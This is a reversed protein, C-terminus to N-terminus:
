YIDLHIAHGDHCLLWCDHIDQAWSPCGKRDMKNKGPFAVAEDFHAESNDLAYAKFVRPEVHVQSAARKSFATSFLSTISAGFKTRSGQQGHEAYSLERVIGTPSIAFPPQHFSELPQDISTVFRGLRLSELPLLLSNPTVALSM